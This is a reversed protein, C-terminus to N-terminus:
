TLGPKAPRRVRAGRGVKIGGQYLNFAVDAVDSADTKLLAILSAASGAPDVYNRQPAALFVTEKPAPITMHFRAGTSNSFNIRAGDTVTPYVADTPPPTGPLLQAEDVLFSISRNTIKGNTAAALATAAAASVAVLDALTATDAQAGSPFSTVATNGDIDTVEFFYRVPFTAM